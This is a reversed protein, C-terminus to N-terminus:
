LSPPEETRPTEEVLEGEQTVWVRLGDVIFLYWGLINPNGPVADVFCEPYKDRVINRAQSETLVTM